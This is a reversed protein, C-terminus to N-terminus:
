AKEFNRVKNYEITANFSNVVIVVIPLFLFAYVLGCYVAGASRRLREAKKRRM